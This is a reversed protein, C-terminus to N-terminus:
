YPLFISAWRVNEAFLSTEWSSKGTALPVLFWNSRPVTDNHKRTQRRCHSGADKRSLEWLPLVFAVFIRRRARKALDPPVVTCSLTTSQESNKLRGSDVSLHVNTKKYRVDAASLRPTERKRHCMIRRSDPLLWINKHRANAASFRFSQAKKHGFGFNACRRHVFQGIAGVIQGTRIHDMDSIQFTVAHSWWSHKSVWWM